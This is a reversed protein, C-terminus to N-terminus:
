SQKPGKCKWDRPSTGDRGVRAEVASKCRGQKAQMAVIQQVTKADPNIGANRDLAVPRIRGSKMPALGACGALALAATLVFLTKM